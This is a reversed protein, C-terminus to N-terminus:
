PWVPFGPFTSVPPPPTSSNTLLRVSEEVLDVEVLDLLADTGPHQVTIVFRAGDSSWAPPSATIPWDPPLPVSIAMEDQPDVLRMAADVGVAVLGSPSWSVGTILEPPEALRVSQVEGTALELVSLVGSIGDAWALRRGTSDFDPDAFTGTFRTPDPRVRQEGFWNLSGDSRDIVV